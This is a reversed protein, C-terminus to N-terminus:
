LDGFHETSDAVLANGSISQENDGDMIVTYYFSSRHMVVSM